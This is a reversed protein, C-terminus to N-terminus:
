EVVVIEPVCYSMKAPKLKGHYWGLRGQRKVLHGRETTRVLSLVDGVNVELRHDTSDGCRTEGNQHYLDDNLVWLLRGTTCHRCWTFEGSVELTEVLNDVWRVTVPDQSPEQAEGATYLPLDDYSVLTFAGDPDPPLILANLQGWNKIGCGGDISAIKREGLLLPNCNPVDERYLTVPWHGVVCYKSFAHGQALFDDNKMCHWANLSEMDEYSPVGGHVFVYDPTEVITPLERLFRLEAAFAVEAAEGLVFLDDSTELSLDLARAMQLILSDPQGQLYRLIADPPFDAEPTLDLFLCDCNGTVFYVQHTTQLEMLFRLTDLSQPGKELFDGLVVLVDQASFSVRDLLGQFWDLRGHIDSVVLVRSHAPFSTRLINPKM